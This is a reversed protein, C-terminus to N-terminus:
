SKRDVVQPVAGELILIVQPLVQDGLQQQQQVLVVVILRQRLQPRDVLPQESRDSQHGAPDWIGHRRQSQIGGPKAGAFGPQLVVIDNIGMPSTNEHYGMAKLPPGAGMAPQTNIYGVYNQVYIVCQCWPAAVPAAAAVQPSVSGVSAALVLVTLPSMLKRSINM